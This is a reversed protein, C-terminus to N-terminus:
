TSDNRAENNLDELLQRRTTDTNTWKTHHRSFAVAGGGFEHPRLKSCTAAWEFSVTFDIDLEDMLLQLVAVVQEPNGSEESNFWLFSGDEQWGFEIYEPEEGDEEEEKPYTKKHLWEVAPKHIESPLKIFFSFLTYNNAM